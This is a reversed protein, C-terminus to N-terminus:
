GARRRYNHLVALEALTWGTLVAPRESYDGTAYQHVQEPNTVLRAAASVIVHALPVTPRGDRDFGRGRTYGHVFAEVVPLHTNALAIVERDGPRGIYAAERAALPHDTTGEPDTPTEGGPTGPDEPDPTPAATVVLDLSWRGASSGMDLVDVAVPFTGPQTPTGTLQTADSHGAPKGDATVRSLGPCTTADSLFRMDTRPQWSDAGAIDAAREATITLPEGQQADIQPM